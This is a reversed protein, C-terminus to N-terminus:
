RGMGGTKERRTHSRSVVQQSWISGLTLREARGLSESQTGERCVPTDSRGVRASVVSLSGWAREARDASRPDRQETAATRNGLAWGPM